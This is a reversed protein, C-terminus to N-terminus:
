NANLERCLAKNEGSSVDLSWRSHVAIKPSTNNGSIKRSNFGSTKEDSRSPILSVLTCAADRRQLTKKCYRTSSESHSPMSSRQSLIM